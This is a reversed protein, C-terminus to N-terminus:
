TALLSGKIERTSVGDRRGNWDAGEVGWTAHPGAVWHTALPPDGQVERVGDGCCIWGRPSDSRGELVARFGDVERSRQGDQVM